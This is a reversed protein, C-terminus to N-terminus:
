FGVTCEIKIVQKEGGKVAYQSCIEIEVFYKYLFMTKFIQKTHWPM